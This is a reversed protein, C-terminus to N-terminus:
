HLMRMKTAIEMVGVNGVSGMGGMNEMEERMPTLGLMVETFRRSERSRCNNTLVVKTSRLRVCRVIVAMGWLM